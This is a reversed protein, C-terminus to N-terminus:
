TTLSKRSRSILLLVNACIQQSLYQDLEAASTSYPTVQTQVVVSYNTTSRSRSRLRTDFTRAEFLPSIYLATMGCKSHLVTVEILMSFPKM